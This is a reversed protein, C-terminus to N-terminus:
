RKSQTSGTKKPQKTMKAALEEARAIALFIQEENLDFIALIIEILHDLGLMEVVDVDENIIKSIFHIIKSKNKTLAQIGDEKNESFLPALLTFIEIADFISDVSISKIEVNEGEIQIIKTKKKGLAERLGM